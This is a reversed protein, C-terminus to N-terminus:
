TAHDDEHAALRALTVLAALLIFPTPAVGVQAALPAHIVPALYLLVALVLGSPQWHSAGIHRLLVVLPVLLLALDYLYVHPMVLLGALVLAAVPLQPSVAHRCVRGLYFLSMLIIAGQGAWALPAGLGATRLTGYLSVLQHSAIHDFNQLRAAPEGIQHLYTLWVGAGYRLISALVLGLVVLFAVMVIAYNQRWLLVVPALVGLHPKFAALGLATGALLSQRAVAWLLVLYLSVLLLSNQGFSLAVWVGPFGIALCFLDLRRWLLMLLVLGVACLSGWSYVLWAQGFSLYGLPELLLLTSPPYLSARVTVLHALAAVPAQAALAAADYAQAPQGRAALHAQAWFLRFDGGIMTQAVEADSLAHTVLNARAFNAYGLGAALLGFLVFLVAALTHARSM